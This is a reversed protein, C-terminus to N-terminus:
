GRREEGRAFGCGGAGWAGFLHAFSGRVAGFGPACFGYVALFYFFSGEGEVAGVARFHDLAFIVLAFLAAFPRKPVVASLFLRDIMVFIPDLLALVDAPIGVAFDGRGSEILVAFAFTDPFSPVRVTESVPFFGVFVVLLDGSRHGM